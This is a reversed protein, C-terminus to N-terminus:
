RSMRNTLEEFYEEGIHEKYFDEAQEKTLSIERQMAVEFGAEKIKELIEDTDSIFFLTNIGDNLNIPLILAGTFFPGISCNLLHISLLQM